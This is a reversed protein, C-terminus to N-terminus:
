TFVCDADGDQLFSQELKSALKNSAVMRKKVSNIKYFPFNITEIFKTLEQNYVTLTEAKLQIVHQMIVKVILGIAEPKYYVYPVHLYNGRLKLIVFGVMEKNLDFVKFSIYYFRTDITSFYYNTDMKHLLPASLVWPNNLIWNLENADRQVLEESKRYNQIFTNAQIDIANIYELTFPQQNSILWKNAKNLMLKNFIPLAFKKILLKFKTKLDLEIKDESPLNLWLVYVNGELNPLTAVDKNIEYFQYASESIDIAAYSDPYNEIASLFLFAGLGTNKVNPNVWGTTAWAIQHTEGNETFYDPLIGIYGVIKKEVYAVFLIIDNDKARPNQLQSFLRHKTIPIVDQGWLEKQVAEKRLEGVTFEKIEM